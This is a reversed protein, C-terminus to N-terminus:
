DNFLRGAEIEEFAKMTHECVKRAIGERDLGAYAKRLDNTEGVNKVSYAGGGRQGDTAVAVDVDSFDGKTDRAPFRESALYLVKQSIDEPAVAILKVLPCVLTWVIRFWVPLNAAYFAPTIVLGPFIHIFRIKGAHEQALKEFFFTTMFTSHDRVASIGYYKRLSLDDPSFGSQKELGGAFVSICAAGGPIRSNSLLLGLRVIFRMRSYYLLSFSTDLGESTETTNVNTSAGLRANPGQTINRKM